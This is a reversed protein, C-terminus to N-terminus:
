KEEYADEMMAVAYQRGTDGCATVVMCTNFNIPRVAVTYEGSAVWLADETKYGFKIPQKYLTSMRTLARSSAEEFIGYSVQTTIFEKKGLPISEGLKLAKIVVPDLQVVLPPITDTWKTKEVDYSGEYPQEGEFGKITAKYWQEPSSAFVWRNAVKVKCFSTPEADQIGVTLIDFEYITMGDTNVLKAEVPVRVDYFLNDSLQLTVTDYVTDSGLIKKPKCLFYMTVALAILVAACIAGTIINNKM